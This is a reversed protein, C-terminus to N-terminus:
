VGQDVMDTMMCMLDGTMRPTGPSQPVDDYPLCRDGMTGSMLHGTEGGFCISYEDFCQFQGHRTDSGSRADWDCYGNPQMSTVDMCHAWGSGVCDACTYCYSPNCTCNTCAGAWGGLIALVIIIWVVVAVIPITL